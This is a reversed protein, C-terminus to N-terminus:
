GRGWPAKGQSQPRPPFLAMPVLNTTLLTIMLLFTSQSQPPNLSLLHTTLQDPTNKSATKSDDNLKVEANNSCHNCQIMYIVNKSNFDIHNTISRTEGTAHFTYPLKDTLYTNVLHSLKKWRPILGLAPQTTHSQSTEARVLFIGLNSSRRYAVIPAAKFVNYCRPLHFLSKFTNAFLPHSPVFPQTTPSLLPFVNQNTWHPLTMPHLHKQGHSITLLVRQIERQLFYRSYGRKNLYDILENTRQTFTENTSCIRGLRLALTFPYCTQHTHGNQFIRLSPTLLSM